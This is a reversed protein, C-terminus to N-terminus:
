KVKIAFEGKQSIKAMDAVKSKSPDLVSVRGQWNTSFKNEKCAPCKDGEVFLKCKKCSKMKAM